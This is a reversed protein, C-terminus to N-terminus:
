LFFLTVVLSWVAGMPSMSRNGGSELILLNDAITENLCAEFSSNRGSEMM